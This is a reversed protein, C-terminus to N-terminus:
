VLILDDKRVAAVVIGNYAIVVRDGSFQKVDHVRDYVFTALKTGDYTKAGKRVRVTSGVTIKETKETSAGKVVIGSFGANQLKKVYNDANAKVAFAGVQVKWLAGVQVVFADFGAVRVAECKATANKKVSFAGLQVRYLTVADERTGTENKEPTIEEKPKEGSMACKVAERFGDMTYSMELQRWLHEPDAHGSAIGRKHGEAHSVIVGDATPNLNYKKCLYAFLEVASNYTTTAMRKAREKDSCTFNAGGIYRICDPECMEVGIHTNNSSGGGHWGRHDWPLTQKVTGSNADIFAHVCAAGYSANDFIRVFVDASPQSCGVSHLMLGKVSIRAGAKYCPNNTVYSQVINM